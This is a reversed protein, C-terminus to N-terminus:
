LCSVFIYCLQVGGEKIFPPPQTELNKPFHLPESKEWILTPNTFDLTTKFFPTNSIKM